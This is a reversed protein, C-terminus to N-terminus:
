LVICAPRRYKKRENKSIGRIAVKSTLSLLEDINQGTRADVELCEECICKKQIDQIQDATLSQGTQVSGYEFRLIILIIDDSINRKNHFSMQRVFGFVLEHDKHNLGIM